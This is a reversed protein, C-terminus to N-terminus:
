ARVGSGACSGCDEDAVDCGPRLDAVYLTGSGECDPCLVARLRERALVVNGGTDLASLLDAARVALLAYAAERRELEAVTASMRPSDTGGATYHAALVANKLASM